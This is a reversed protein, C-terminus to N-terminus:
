GILHWNSYPNPWLGEDRLFPEPYSFPISSADLFFQVIDHGLGLAALLESGFARSFLYVSLTVDCVDSYFVKHVKASSFPYYPFAHFIYNFHKKGTKGENDKIFKMLNIYAALECENSPPSTSEFCSFLKDATLVEKGGCLLRQFVSSDVHKSVDILGFYNIGEWLKSLATVRKTVLEEALLYHTFESVTSVTLMKEIPWGSRDM